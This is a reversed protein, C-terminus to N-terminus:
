ATYTLFGTRVGPDFDAVFRRDQEGPFKRLIIGRIRYTIISLRDVSEIIAEHRLGNIFGGEKDRVYLRVTNKMPNTNILAKKLGDRSPGDLIEHTHEKTM